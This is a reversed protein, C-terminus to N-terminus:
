LHDDEETTTGSRPRPKVRGLLRRARSTEGSPEERERQEARRSAPLLAMPVDMTSRSSEPPAPASSDGMAGGEDPISLTLSCRPCSAFQVICHRCIPAGCSHVYTAIGSCGSCRAGAPAATLESKVGELSTDAPAPEAASPPPPASYPSTSTTTSPASPSPAPPPAPVGTPKSPMVGSVSVAPMTTRLDMTMSEVAKIVMAKYLGIRLNKMLNFPSREEPPFTMAKRAMEEVEPTLHLADAKVPTGLVTQVYGFLRQVQGLTAEPPSLAAVDAQTINGREVSPLHRQQAQTILNYSLAELDTVEKETLQSLDVEVVKYIERMVPDLLDWPVKITMFLDNRTVPRNLQASLLLGRKGFSEIQQERIKQTAIKKAEVAAEMEPDVKLAADVSTLAAEPKGADLLALGLRLHAHANAPALRAADEYAKLAENPHGLKEDVQGLKLYAEANGRDVAVARSYADAAEQWKEQKSRLDGMRLLLSVDSPLRTLGRQCADVAGDLSGLGAEAESLLLYSEPPANPMSVVTGKLFDRADSHRGLALLTKVKWLALDADTADMKALDEFISLADPYRELKYSIIGRLALVQRGLEPPMTKPFPPKGLSELMRLAEEDNGHTSEAKAKRFTVLPALAPDAKAAEDYSAFAEDLNELDSALDGKRLLLDAKGATPGSQLLSHIADYADKKEGRNLHIRYKEEWAQVDDPSLLLIAKLSYLVDEDRGLSKYADMRLRWAQLNSPDSRLLMDLQRVADPVRGTLMLMESLSLLATQDHPDLGLGRQYTVLADQYAGTEKLADALDFIAAPDRDQLSVASKLEALGETKKNALMLLRGHRRLYLPNQPERQVLIEVYHLAKQDQNLARLSEALGWLLDTDECGLDLAHQYVEMAEAHRGMERLVHGREKTIDARKANAPMELFRAYSQEARDPERVFKFTKALGLLSDSALDPSISAREYSRLAERAWADKTAPPAPAHEAWQHYMRAREMAIDYAAPDIAFIRDIIPPIDSFKQLHWLCDKKSKLYPVGDPTIALLADTVKVAEAWDGLEALAAELWELTTVEHPDTALIARAFDVVKPNLHAQHALELAKRIEAAEEPHNRAIDEYVAIARDTEGSAALKGALLRDAEVNHPSLALWAECAQIAIGRDADSQALAILAQINALNRPDIELARLRVAKLLDNDIPENELASAIELLTVADVPVKKELLTRYLGFAEAYSKSERLLKAKTFLYSPNDPFLALARDLAKLAVDQRGNSALLVALTYQLNADNPNQAILAQCTSIAATAGGLKIAIDLKMHLARSNNPSIKLARDVYQTSSADLQQAQLYCDVAEPNRGLIKLADGKSAWIAKDHPYNALAQDLLQLALGVDMNMSILIVAKHHLAPVFSPSFSLAYQIAALALDGRSLGYLALAATDLIEAAEHAVSALETASAQTDHLLAELQALEDADNGAAHAQNAAQLLQRLRGLSAPPQQGPDRAGRM